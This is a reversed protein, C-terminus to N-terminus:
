AFSGSVGVAFTPCEAGYLSLSFPAKGDKEIRKEKLYGPWMSIIENGKFCYVDVNIPGRVQHGTKNVVNGVVESGAQRADTVTLPAASMPETDPKQSTVSLSINADEPIAKPNSFSIATLGIEGPQVIGPTSSLSMGQGVVSDGNKASGQWRVSSIPEGTNNRFAIVLAGRANVKADPTVVVIGGPDGDPFEPAATGGLLGGANFPLPKVQQPTSEKQAGKSPAQGGPQPASAGQTCSALLLAAGLALVASFRSHM